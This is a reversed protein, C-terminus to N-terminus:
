IFGLIVAVLLSQATLVSGVLLCVVDLCLKVEM